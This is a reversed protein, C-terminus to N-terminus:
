WVNNTHLKLWHGITLKPLFSLDFRLQCVLWCLLGALAHQGNVGLM